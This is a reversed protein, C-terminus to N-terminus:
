TQAKIYYKKITKIEHEFDYFKLLELLQEGDYSTNLQSPKLKGKNFNELYETGDKKFFGSTIFTASLRKGQQIEQKYKEKAFPVANGFFYEITGAEDWAGKAISSTSPYGKLEVLLIEKPQSSLILYDYEHSQKKGLQQQQLYLIKGPYIEANPYLRKMLPYLLAEFLAGRLQKLADEQGSAELIELTKDITEASAVKNFDLHISKMNELVGYINKGFISGIDFAIFGLKKASNLALEEIRGYIIIPLVKRGVRASNIHLQIRSLYGDLDTQTYARSLIVDLTVLTQKKVTDSFAGNLENIGTTKTYAYADWLINNHKAGLSPINKSRYITKLNDIINSKRLWSLIDPIMICDTVNRQYQMEMMPTEMDEPLVAKETKEIIFEMNNQDKKEYLLNLRRLPGILEELTNIKSSNKEEPSSTVKLAEYYSIIGSNIQLLEILRYMPPRLKKAILKINQLDLTKYASYYLFQGKVFSLPASSNIYGESVARQIIKRAYIESVQFKQVLIGSLDAGSVFNRLYLEESLFTNYRNPQRNIEM